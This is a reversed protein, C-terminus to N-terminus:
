PSEETFRRDIPELGECAKSALKRTPRPADRSHWRGHRAPGAMGATRQKGRAATRLPRDSCRAPHLTGRGGGRRRGGGPGAAGGGVWATRGPPRHDANRLHRGPSAGRERGSRRKRLAAAATALLPSGGGGAGGG